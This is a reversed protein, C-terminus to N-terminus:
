GRLTSSSASRHSAVCLTAQGPSLIRSAFLSIKGLAGAPRHPQGRSGRMFAWRRASPTVVVGDPAQRRWAMASSRREAASGVAQLDQVLRALCIASIWSSGALQSGRVGATMQGGAELGSVLPPLVVGGKTYLVICVVSPLTAEYPRTLGMAYYELRTLGMLM